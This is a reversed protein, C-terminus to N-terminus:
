WLMRYNMRNEHPHSDLSCGATQLDDSELILFATRLLLIKEKMKEKTEKARGREKGEKRRKNRKEAVGM